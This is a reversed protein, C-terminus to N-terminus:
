EPPVQTEVLQEPAPAQSKDKRPRGRKKKPGAAPKGLQKYFKQSFISNFQTKAEANDLCPDNEGESVIELDSDPM